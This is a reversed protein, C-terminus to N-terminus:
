FKQVQIPIINIVRRVLHVKFNFTAFSKPTYIIPQIILAWSVVPACKNYNEDKLLM